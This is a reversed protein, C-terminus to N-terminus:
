YDFYWNFLDSRLGFSVWTTATQDTGDPVYNSQLSRYRISAFAQLRTMPNFLYRTELAAYYYNSKNGQGIVVGEDLPRNDNYGLYLNSGYNNADVNTPYDLGRVGITVQGTLTWRKKQYQSILVLENFNGGWPHGLSQNAHGYNTLVNSHSYVYPRVSNWEIRGSLEPINAIHRFSFGLQYGYKNKWSNNQKKVESLSFEDLLFQGYLTCYNSWKYKATLGLLANGSRSSSTFEVTRFFVIPNIFNMDFGRDNNNAWVVSEFLGVNLRKSVNISLYHSAAYKSAYTQDATAEPRIDKLWMYINTYKIKWFTTEIRFFPYPSGADSLLLSRYGDGIFNKGYGLHLLFFQNPNYKLHADALPFDYADTKFEKAIGIGPILAPNGGAPKLSEAYQNYYEAFHGQNEFITTSFTLEKGIGGQIQLARSNIFTTKNNGINTKGAQVDVMPNVTFWYSDGQIGVFDENFWKRGWWSTYSTKLANDSSKLDAYKSVEQYSFPRMGTHTNAGVQNLETEFQQYAVNTFPIAISSTYKPNHFPGATQQNLQDWDPHEAQSNQTLNNLSNAANPLPLGNESLPFQLEWQFSMYTAVGNVIAPKVPALNSLFQHIENKLSENNSQIYLPHFQGTDTVEFLLKIHEKTETKKFQQYFLTHLERFFCPTIEKGAVSKCNSFQPYTADSEQSYIACSTLLVLIWFSQKCRLTKM